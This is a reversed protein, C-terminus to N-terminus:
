IAQIVKKGTFDELLDSKKCQFFGPAYIHLSTANKTSKNSIKHLGIHNDIYSAHHQQLRTKIAKEGSYRTEQLEGQLVKLVCGQTAHNHIPSGQGPQWCLVLVEFAKKRVVFNRAYHESSYHVYEQWDQGTYQEILPKFCQISSVNPTKEFYKDIVQILEILTKM